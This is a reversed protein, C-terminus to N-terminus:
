ESLSAWRKGKQILYITSPNVNTIISLSNASIGQKLANRIHIVQKASLKHNPHNEGNLDNLGIDRAHKNNNSLSVWELNKPNNDTKIGNIHNVCLHPEYGDVFARAVLRHVAVKPRRNGIKASVYMYGNRDLCQSMKKEQINTEFEQIVGNRVRTTKSVFAERYISGDECVIWNAGKESVQVKIM